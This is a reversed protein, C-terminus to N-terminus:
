ECHWGPLCTDNKALPVPLAGPQRCGTENYGLSYVYGDYELSSMNPFQGFQQRPLLEPMNTDAMNASSRGHLADSHM